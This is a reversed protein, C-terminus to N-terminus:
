KEIHFFLPFVHYYRIYSITYFQMYPDPVVNLTGNNNAWVDNNNLKSIM